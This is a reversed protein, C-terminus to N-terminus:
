LGVQRRFEACHWLCQLIANLFCNYEGAENSLGSVPLLAAQLCRACCSNGSSRWYSPWWGITPYSASFAHPLYCACTSGAM